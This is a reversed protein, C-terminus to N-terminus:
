KKVGRASVEGKEGINLKVRCEPCYWKTTRAPVETLGVCELHFWEQKCQGNTLKNDTQKQRLTTSLSCSNASSDCVESNECAIMTGFSVRNCLCYKPEDPDIPNGDDDVDELEVEASGRDKKPRAKKKPPAKRKGVASNGGSKTTSVIGPAPRKTRKPPRPEPAPTNRATSARRPRDAALSLQPEQSAAKGRSSPRRIALGEPGPTIRPTPARSPVQRSAVEPAYQP